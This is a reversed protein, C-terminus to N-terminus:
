ATRKKCTQYYGAAAHRTLGMCHSLATIILQRSNTTIIMKNYIDLAHAIKTGAKPANPVKKAVAQKIFAPTKQDIAEKMSVTGLEKLLVITEGCHSLRKTGRVAKNHKVSSLIFEVKCCQCEYLFKRKPQAVNSVDMNHTRDSSIGFVRMIRQWYTGHSRMLAGKRKTGFVANKVLHAVEHPIIQNLYEDWNELMLRANFNLENLSFDATGGCTGRKDFRVHPGELERQYENNAIAIFHDVRIYIESRQALTLM